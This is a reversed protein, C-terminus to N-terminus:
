TWSSNSFNCRFFHLPTLRQHKKSFFIQTASRISFHAFLTLIQYILIRFAVNKSSIDLYTESKRVRCVLFAIKRMSASHVIMSVGESTRFYAWSSNSLNWRFFHLHTLRQHKKSFFFNQRLVFRFTPLHHSFRTLFVNKLNFNFNGCKYELYPPFNESKRVRYVSFAIKRMSASNVIM